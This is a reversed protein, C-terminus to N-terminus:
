APRAPRRRHRILVVVLDGVILALACAITVMVAITTTSSMGTDRVGIFLLALLLVSGIWAEHPHRRTWRM